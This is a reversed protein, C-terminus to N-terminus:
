ESGTNILSTPKWFIEKYIDKEFFYTKQRWGVM